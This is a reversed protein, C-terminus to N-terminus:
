MIVTHDSTGGEVEFRLTSSGVGIQDGNKLAVIKVARGNVTIGNSSQNDTLEWQNNFFRINAHKKSVSPDTIVLDNDAGRGIDIYSKEISFRKESGSVNQSILVAAPRSGGGSLKQMSRLTSDGCLLEPALTRVGTLDDDQDNPIEASAPGVIIFRQEDFRLEDGPKAICDQVKKGNLYTGNRSSLDIVRLQGNDVQLEAHHRSLLHWDITLDCDPDRGVITKDKLAYFQSSLLDSETRLAWSGPRCMKPDYIELSVTGLRIVDWSNLRTKTTVRHDNVFTGGTSLLDLIYLGEEDRHIEAHFDSVRLTDLVFDNSTDRGM